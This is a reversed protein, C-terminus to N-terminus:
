LMLYFWQKCTNESRTFEDLENLLTVMLGRHQRYGAEHRGTFSLAGDSIILFLHSSV